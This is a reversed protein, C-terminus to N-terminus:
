HLTFYKAEQQHEPHVPQTMYLCVEGKNNTMETYIHIHLKIFINITMINKLMWIRDKLKPLSLFVTWAEKTDCDLHSLYLIQSSSCLPTLSLLSLGCLFLKPWVATLILWIQLFKFLLLYKLTTEKNNNNNNYWYM